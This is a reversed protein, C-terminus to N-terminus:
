KASVSGDALKDRLEALFQKLPTDSVGSQFGEEIAREIRPDGPSPVFPKAHEPLVVDVVYREVDSFGAAAALRTIEPVADDPIRIEM